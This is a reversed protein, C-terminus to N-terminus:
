KIQKIVEIPAKLTLGSELQIVFSLGDNEIEKIEGAQGEYNSHKNMIVKNGIQM